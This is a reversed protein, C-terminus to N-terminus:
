RRIESLSLTLTIQTEAGNAVTIRQWEPSVRTTPRSARDLILMAMIEYEGPLLTTIMFRGRSDVQASRSSSPLPANGPGPAANPDIRRCVAVVRAGPPLEGGEVKLEGRVIGNAQGLIVRVGTLHEGPSLEVAFRDTEAGELRVIVLSQTAPSSRVQFFFKGPPLPTVNFSGDSDIRVPSALGFQTEPTAFVTLQIAKLLETSRAPGPSDILVLGSISGAKRARVEIGRVDADTVDFRTVESYYVSGTEPQAYVGFHGPTLGEIRFEGQPGSRWASSSNRGRQRGEADLPSFAYPVNVVPQGTEANVIRGHATFTRSAKGVVIDIGTAEGGPTVTVIGAQKEDSVGPYFVETYRARATRVSQADAGASVVYRGPELGYVRYVGRDDTELLDFLGYNMGPTSPRSLGSPDLRMLRIRDKILPRGDPDTVRGTIVGGRTLSLDVDNLMEDEVVNVAKGPRGYLTESPVIFAPTFPVVLYSGARVNAFQYRGDEDTIAPESNDPRSTGTQQNMLAVSAGIVPKGEITIRGSIVSRGKATEQTQASVFVANALAVIAAVALQKM